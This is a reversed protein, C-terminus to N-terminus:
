DTPQGKAPARTTPTPLPQDLIPLQVIFTSGKGVETSGLKIVGQHSRVIIKSLWLGLGAGEGFEKRPVPENFIRSRTKDDIGKGTDSVSVQIFRQLRDGTLSSSVEVSGSAPYIAKIANEILVRFVETLQGISGFTDPVSPDLHATVSIRKQGDVIASGSQDEVLDPLNSTLRVLAFRDVDQVCAAIATRLLSNVNTRVFPEQRLPTQMRRIVETAFLTNREITNLIEQNDADHGVRYRLRMVAPLIVNITNGLRHQLTAAATGLAALQEKALASEQAQAFAIAVAAQNGLHRLIEQEDDPFAHPAAFNVFLVGATTRLSQVSAVTLPLGAFARLGYRAAFPYSESGEEVEYVFVPLQSHAITAPLEDGGPLDDPAVKEVQEGRRLRVGQSFSESEADYRYISTMDAGSLDNVARAVLDLVDDPDRSAEAMRASIHQVRDLRRQREQVAAQISAYLRANDLAIAAQSALTELVQLDNQDYVNDQEPDYAAIVGLVQDGALMPVGIWSNFASGVYEEHGAPAYWAESEARTAHFISRRTRIIEETKGAGGSRPTWGSDSGPQLWEDPLREGKEMVLGFRVTDTAEEYLAIYMNDMSMLRSGQAQILELVEPESLRLGATLTQGVENLASLAQNAESYGRAALAVAAQSALTTLVQLDNQDYVHDQEPDYAAIIGLVQEGVLMPVGIWSGFKSGVYEKHGTQAYWAEAEARTANFISKRTRIIEETKGAGGSRPAYGSDSGSQLWEDPLREGEEMVLGFRVTDTAEEYLAIYMNDMAMLRSGQAQILELVERESMDPEAALAQGVQNLADLELVRRELDQVVNFYLRANELAIAAHSAIATLLGADAEDFAGPRDFSQLGIVGIVRDQLIVPALLCCKAEKRLAEEVEGEGNAWDAFNEVLLTQRHRIVWEALGQREGYPRPAYPRGETKAQEPVRRGREYALPFRILGNQADYLGIFINSTDVLGSLKDRILELQQEVPLIDSIASQFDAIAALRDQQRRLSIAIGVDLAMTELIELNHRTFGGRADRDASIVGVLKDEVKIPAVMVSRSASRPKYRGEVFRDDRSTDNVLLPQGSQVVAGALGEGPRFRQVDSIPHLSGARVMPVLEGSRNDLIFVTSHDCRLTECAAEVAMEYIQELRPQTTLDTAVGHLTQLDDMFDINQLVTSAHLTLTDLLRLDEANFAGIRDFDASVVGIVREGRRLPSLLISRPRAETEQPGLKYHDDEATNNVIQSQGTQYVWGALGEGPRFRLKPMEAFLRGGSKHSALVNDEGVLFLTCYDCTLTDTVADLVAQYVAEVDRIQSLRIASRNLTDLDRNRRQEREYVDANYIALAAHNAFAAALEGAEETYYGTQKHDLTLLGIVAGEVMLPVGIWSRIHATQPMDQWLPEARVDGLVLPRRTEVIRSVLRDQAVERQLEPPSDAMLFGRGGILWRRGDQILQVSASDYEVVEHLQDLVRGVVEDRDLSANIIQAVRRLTEAQRRQERELKFLRAKRIAVAAQAAFSEIVDRQDPGFFQPTRYNVFMLGVTEDAAVLPAIASSAIGERIVFPRDREPMDPPQGSLRGTLLPAAPSDEFYEAHKLGIAWTAVDDPAIRTPTLRPYKPEGTRVPPLVFRDDAQIYQYLDVIDADLVEHASEAIGQLTSELTAAPDVIAALSQGVNKLRAVSEGRIAAQRAMWANGAIIAAQRGFLRIIRKEEESFHHPTRYDVYLIGLVHRGLELSIGMFAKVGERALLPSASTSDGSEWELKDVDECIVEGFRHVRAALGKRKDARAEVQLEQQLGCATVNELDYFEGFAPHYPYLVACAAGTAQCVGEVLMQYVPRPNEVVQEQAARGIALLQEIIRIHQEGPVLTAESMKKVV